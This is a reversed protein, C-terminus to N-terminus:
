QGLSRPELDQPLVFLLARGYQIRTQFATQDPNFHLFRIELRASGSRVFSRVARGWMIILTENCDNLSRALM